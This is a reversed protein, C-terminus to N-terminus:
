RDLRVMGDDDARAQDAADAARRRTAAATTRRKSPRASYGTVEDVHMRYIATQFPAANGARSMEPVRSRLKAIGDAITDDATAPGTTTSYCSGRAVVSQWKSV